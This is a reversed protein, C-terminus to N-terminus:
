YIDLGPASLDVKTKGFNSAYLKSGEYGFSALNGNQDNAAVSIINPFDYSAPYQPTIDNDLGDNGAAAIIIIGAQNAKSIEDSLAPDNVTGGWSCNVIKIGNTICYELASIADSTKGGGVNNLFKLAAVKVNWAVGSIGLLNNGKAAIIGAVHTGHFDDDMPNNDKNCFDWGHVDDIYGNNDDDIGNVQEKPNVWVNAKLDEHGYDIGSDIVGIVISSDGATIGWADRAGIDFTTTGNIAWCNKFYQDNPVTSKHVIYNPEVYEVDPNRSLERILADISDTSVKWHEAGTSWIKQVSAKKNKLISSRSGTFGSQANIGPFRKFKIILEDKVAETGQYKIKQFEQPYVAIQFAILLISIFIVSHKM